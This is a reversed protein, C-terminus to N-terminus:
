RRYNMGCQLRLKVSSMAEAQRVSKHEFTGFKNKAHSKFFIIDKAIMRRTRALGTETAAAVSGGAGVCPLATM